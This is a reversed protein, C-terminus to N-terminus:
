GIDLPLDGIVNGKRSISVTDELRIGFEGQLYIGPEVTIVMGEEIITEDRTSFGPTEHIDM